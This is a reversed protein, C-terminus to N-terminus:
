SKLDGCLLIGDAIRQEMMPGDYYREEVIKGNQWKQWCVGDIQVSKDAHTVFSTRNRFVCIEQVEDCKYDVISGHISKAAAIFPQQKARAEGAGQAFLADNAYMIGDAAFFSDFAELPKGSRLLEVQLDACECFPTENM